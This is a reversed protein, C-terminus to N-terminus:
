TAARRERDIEISVPGCSLNLRDLDLWRSVHLSPQRDGVSITINADCIGVHPYMGFAIAVFVEGDPTWAGLYARDYFNRDTTDAIAIPEVNVLVVPRRRGEAVEMEVRWPVGEDDLPTLIRGSEAVEIRTLREVGRTFDIWALALTLGSQGLLHRLQDM